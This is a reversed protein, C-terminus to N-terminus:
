GNAAVKRRHSEWWLHLAGGNRGYIREAIRPELEKTLQRETYNTCAITPLMNQERASVVSFLIQYDAPDKTHMGLEDLVLLFPTSYKLIAEETSEREEFGARRVDKIANLMRATEVYRASRGHKMVEFMTACALHTKGTGRNGALILGDSSHPDNLYEACCAKVMAAVEEADVNEPIYNSFRSLYHLPPMGSREIREVLKRARERKDNEENRKAAENSVERKCVPCIAGLKSAGCQRAIYTYPGHRDCTGTGHIVTIQPMM